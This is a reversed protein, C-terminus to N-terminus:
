IYPFGHAPLWWWRARSINSTVKPSTFAMM